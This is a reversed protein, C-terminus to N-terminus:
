IVNVYIYAQLMFFPIKLLCALQVDHCKGDHSLLKIEDSVSGNATGWGEKPVLMSLLVNNASSAAAQARLRSLLAADLTYVRKSKEGTTANMLQVKMASSVVAAAVATDGQEIASSSATGSSNSTVTTNVASNANAQLVQQQQATQERLQTVYERLLESCGDSDSLAAANYSSGRQLLLMACAREGSWGARQIDDRLLEDPLEDALAMDVTSYGANNLATADCGHQLLATVCELRGYAAAAHLLTNGATATASATYSAGRESLLALTDVAGAIAANLMCATALSSLWAGSSLLLQVTDTDSYLCALQLASRGETDLATPSVGKALLLPICDARNHMAATHLLTQRYSATATIASYCLV